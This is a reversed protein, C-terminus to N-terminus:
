CKPRHKSLIASPQHATSAATPQGHYLITSATALSSYLTLASILILWLGRVEHFLTVVEDHKLLSPKTKTPKSFNCVLATAPYRKTGDADIYGPQLNFNAAHGYKGDRPHLDLYLYGVFGSGEGEDDWVSFVQVDPHWVIDEGKGTESIADREAGTIQVFVLGFLEEFIQLMGRITTELPFYEAIAEQDLSFEKELMLTDYFSNLILAHDAKSVVIYRGITGCIITAMM